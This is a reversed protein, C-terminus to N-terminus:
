SQPNIGKYYLFLIVLVLYYLLIICENKEHQAFSLKIIVETDPRPPLPPPEEPITQDIIHSSSTDWIGPQKATNGKHAAGWNISELEGMQSNVVNDGAREVQISSVPAKPRIITPKYTSKYEPKSASNQSEFKVVPNLPRALHSTSPAASTNQLQQNKINYKSARSALTDFPDQNEQHALIHQSASFAHTSMNSYFSSVGVRKPVSSVDNEQISGFPDFIDDFGSSQNGTSSESGFSNVSLGDSGSRTTPSGPPSSLDILSAESM